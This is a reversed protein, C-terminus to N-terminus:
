STLLCYFQHCLSQRSAWLCLGVWERGKPSPFPFPLKTLTSGKRCSHPHPTLKVYPLLYQIQLFLLTLCFPRPEFVSLTTSCSTPPDLMSTFSLFFTSYLCFSVWYFLPSYSLCCKQPKRSYWTVDQQLFQLPTPLRPHTPVCLHFPKPLDATIEAWAPKFSVQNTQNM